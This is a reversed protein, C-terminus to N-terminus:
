FILSLELFSGLRRLSRQNTLSSFSIVNVIKQATFLQELLGLVVVKFREWALHDNQQVLKKTWFKEFEDNNAFNNRLLPHITKASEEMAIRHRDEGRFEEWREFLPVLLQQFDITGKVLIRHEPHLSSLVTEMGSDLIWSMRTGVDIDQAPVDSNGLAIHPSPRLTSPMGAIVQNVQNSSLCNPRLSNTTNMPFSDCQGSSLETVTTDPRRHRLERLIDPEPCEELISTFKNRLITAPPRNGPEIELM